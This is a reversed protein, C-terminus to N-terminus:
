PSGPVSASRRFAGGRASPWSRPWDERFVEENIALKLAEIALGLMNRPNSPRAYVLLTRPGAPKIKNTAPRFVQKDIAPEFTICRERFGPEAFRGIKSAAFFNALVAQNVIPRHPFGYTELAMAYRSSLPYFGPEFDQILYLFEKTTTLHLLSNAQHATTWLSAMFTDDGGIELTHATADRLTVNSPRPARTVAEIHKWFWDMGGELPKDCSVFRVSTGARAIACAVQITTNPGGTMSTPGIAPLRVNVTPKGGEVVQAELHRIFPVDLLRDRYVEPNTYQSINRGFREPDHRLLNAQAAVKSFISTARTLYSM